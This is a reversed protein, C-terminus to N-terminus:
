VAQHIPMEWLPNHYITIIMFWCANQLSSMDHLAKFGGAKQARAGEAPTSFGGNFKFTKIPFIVSSFERNWQWTQNRSSM